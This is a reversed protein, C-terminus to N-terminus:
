RNRVMGAGDPVLGDVQGPNIYYVFEYHGGVTVKTGDLSTPANVGNLDGGGWERSRNALNAGYIEMWTGQTVADLAGYSGASIITGTIKPGM